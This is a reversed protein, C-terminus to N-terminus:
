QARLEPALRTIGLIEVIAITWLRINQRQTGYSRWRHPSTSCRRPVSTTWKAGVQAQTGWDMQAATVGDCSFLHLVMSSTLAIISLSRPSICHMATPVCQMGQCDFWLKESTCQRRRTIFSPPSPYKLYASTLNQHGGPKAMRNSVNGDFSAPDDTNQIRERNYAWMICPTTTGM